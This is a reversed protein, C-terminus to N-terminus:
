FNFSIQTAILDWQKSVDQMNNSQGNVFASGFMKHYEFKIDFYKNFKYVFTTYFDHQTHAYKNTGHADAKEQGNWDGIKDTWYGYGFITAVIKPSFWYRTAINIGFSSQHRTDGIDEFFDNWMQYSRTEILWTFRNINHQFGIQNLISKQKYNQIMFSPIKSPIFEDNNVFAFLYYLQYRNDSSSLETNMVFAQGTEYHGNATPGYFANILTNDSSKSPKFFSFKTSIGWGNDFFYTPKFSMGLGGSTYRKVANSYLSQPLIISWRYRPNLRGDSLFGINCRVKGVEVEYEFYDNISDSYKLTLFDIDLDEYGHKSMQGNVSFFNGFYYSSRIGIEYYWNHKETMFELFAEDNQPLYTISGFVDINFVYKSNLYDVKSYKDNAFSLSIFCFYIIILFIVIKNIKLIM